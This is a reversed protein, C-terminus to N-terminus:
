MFLRFPEEDDRLAFGEPIPGLGSTGAAKNLASQRQKMMDPARADLPGHAFHCDDGFPCVGGGNPGGTQM